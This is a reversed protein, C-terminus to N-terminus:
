NSLPQGPHLSPGGQVKRENQRAYVNINTCKHRRKKKRLDEGNRTLVVGPQVLLAALGDDPDGPTKGTKTEHREVLSVTMHVAGTIERGEKESGGGHHRSAM